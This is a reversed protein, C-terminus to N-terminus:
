RHAHDLGGHISRCKRYSCSPFLNAELSETLDSAGAPTRLAAQVRGESSPGEWAWGVGDSLRDLGKALLQTDPNLGQGCLAVLPACRLQPSEQLCPCGASQTFWSGGASCTQRTARGAQQGLAAPVSLQNARRFTGGDRGRHGLCWRPAKFPRREGRSRLNGVAARLEGGAREPRRSPLKEGKAGTSVVRVSGLTSVRDWGELM